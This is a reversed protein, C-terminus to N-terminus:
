LPLRLSGRLPVRRSVFPRLGANGWGRGAFAYKFVNTVLENLIIGLPIAENSDLEVDALNRNGRMSIM